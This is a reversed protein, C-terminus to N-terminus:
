VRDTLTPSNKPLVCYLCVSHYLSVLLPLRVIFYNNTGFKAKLFGDLDVMELNYSITHQLVRDGNRWSTDRTVCWDSYKRKGQSLADLSCSSAQNLQQQHRPINNDNSPQAGTTASHTNLPTPTTNGNQQTHNLDNPTYAQLQTTYFNQITLWVRLTWTPRQISPM